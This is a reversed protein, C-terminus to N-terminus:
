RGSGDLMELVSTGEGRGINLVLETATDQELRRVAAVHADAIDAVNIDPGIFMWLWWWKAPGDGDGPAFV